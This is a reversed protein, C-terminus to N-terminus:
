DLGEKTTSNTETSPSPRRGTETEFAKFISGVPCFGALVPVAISPATRNLGNKKADRRIHTLWESRTGIFLRFDM